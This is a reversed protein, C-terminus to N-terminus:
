VENLSRIGEELLQLQKEGLTTTYPKMVATMQLIGQHIVQETIDSNLSM